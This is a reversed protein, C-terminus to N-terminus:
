LTFRWKVWWWATELQSFYLLGEALSSSAQQVCCHEESQTIVSLQAAHRHTSAETASQQTGNELCSFSWVCPALTAHQLFWLSNIITTLHIFLPLLVLSRVIVSPILSSPLQKNGENLLWCRFGSLNIEDWVAGGAAKNDMLQRPMHLTKLPYLPRSSCKLLWLNHRHCNSHSKQFLPSPTEHACISLLHSELQWQPMRTKIIPCTSQTPHKKKFAKLWTDLQRVM